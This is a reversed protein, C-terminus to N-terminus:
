ADARVLTLGRPVIDCVVCTQPSARHGPEDRPHPVPGVDGARVHRQEVARGKPTMVKKCIDVDADAGEVM